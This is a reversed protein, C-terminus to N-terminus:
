PISAAKRGPIPPLIRRRTYHLYGCEELALRIAERAMARESWVENVADVCSNTPTKEKALHGLFCMRFARREDALIPARAAWSEDPSPGNPGYPQSLENAELFAGATDDWTWYGPHGARAAHADTRVKLAGIGSEIAGNYRPWYPPSFLCEVQHSRLLDQVIPCAFHGGNDSKLVLPAGYDAFLTALALAANDGTAAEVPQWLLQMGTALDRVALLYAWRGDIPQFPGAYDIAWVRGAVPWHLVRLPERNQERWVRRYRKLLDDLEARCMEPFCKRLSPVGVQPGFEDVFHIVRNREERPSRGVPRGLPLPPKFMHLLDHCWKRLTRGAVQIRDAIQTWAWGLDFLRRSVEIVRCRTKQEEERRRNQHGSGRRPAPASSGTSQSRERLRELTPEVIDAPLPATPTPEDVPHNSPSSASEAKPEENGAESPRVTAGITAVDITSAISAATTKPEENGAESPPVTAGITAVDITAAINAAAAVSERIPEGSELDAALAIHSL